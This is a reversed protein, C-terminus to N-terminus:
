CVGHQGNVDLEGVVWVEIDWYSGPVGIVEGCSYFVLDVPDGVLVVETAGVVEERIISCFGWNFENVM